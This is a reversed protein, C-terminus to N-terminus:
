FDGYRLYQTIFDFNQRLTIEFTTNTDWGIMNTM